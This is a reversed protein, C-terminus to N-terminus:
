AKLNNAEVMNYMIDNVMFYTKGATISDHIPNHKVLNNCGSFIFRDLDPDLNVMALMTGLEHMPYPGLWERKKLNDMVCQRMFGSECPSQFDGLIIAKDRWAMYFNWFIERMDKRCPLQVFQANHEVTLLTKVINDQCWQSKVASLEAYLGLTSIIEKTKLDWISVGVAFTEGYLDDTEVDFSFLHTKEGVYM